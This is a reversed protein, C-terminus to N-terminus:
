PRTPAPATGPNRQNYDAIFARTLDVADNVVFMVEGLKSVDFIVNVGRQRAFAAIREIPSKAVVALSVKNTIHRASGDLGDLISTCSTCAQKMNPGYMFSYVVLTDQGLQFLQSLRVERPTGYTDVEVFAYDEALEGGLPLKRRLEAVVETQDRLEMEAALLKNRAARYAASENPFRKDHLSRSERKATVPKKVARKVVKKKVKAPM